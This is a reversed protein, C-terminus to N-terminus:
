LNLDSEYPTLDELNGSLCVWFTFRWKNVIKLCYQKMLATKSQPQPFIASKWVTEKKTLKFDQSQGFYMWYPVKKGWFIM